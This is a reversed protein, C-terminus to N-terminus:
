YTDGIDCAETRNCWRKRVRLDRMDRLSNALPARRPTKNRPWVAARATEDWYRIASPLAIWTDPTAQRGRLASTLLVENVSVDITFSAVLLACTTQGSCNCTLASPSNGASM